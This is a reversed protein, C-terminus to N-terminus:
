KHTTGKQEANDRHGIGDRHRSGRELGQGERQFELKGKTEKQIQSEVEEWELEM